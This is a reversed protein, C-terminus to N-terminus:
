RYSTEPWAPIHRVDTLTHIMGDHMMIQVSGIGVTEHPNNAGMRM